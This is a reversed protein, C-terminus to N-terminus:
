FAHERAQIDKKPTSEDHYVYGVTDLERAGCLLSFLLPSYNLSKGEDVGYEVWLPYDSLLISEVVQQNLKNVFLFLALKAVRESLM